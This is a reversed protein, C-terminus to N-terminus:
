SESESDPIVANLQHMEREKVEAVTPVHDLLSYQRLLAYFRPEAEALKGRPVGEFDRHYRELLLKPDVRRAFRLALQPNSPSHIPKPVDPLIPTSDTQSESDSVPSPNNTKYSQSQKGSYGPFYMSLQRTVQKQRIPNRPFHRLLNEKRLKDYLPHDLVKIQGRSCGNYNDAAYALLDVDRLRQASPIYELLGANKLGRYVPNDLIFLDSRTVGSYKRLYIGLPDSVDSHSKSVVESTLGEDSVPLLM